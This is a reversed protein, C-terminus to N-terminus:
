RRGSSASPRPGQNLFEMLDVMERPQFIPWPIQQERMRTLMVPGHNWMTTALAMPTVRGRWDSLSPGTGEGAPLHCSACQKVEFVRRGRAVSGSPDFYRQAFLYAVLDAMEKNSFQARPIQQAKMSAWM